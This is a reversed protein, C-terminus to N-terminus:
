AALLRGNKWQIEHEVVQGAKVDIPSEFQILAQMWHSSINDPSNRLMVGAGLDLEFWAVIAHATGDEVVPLSVKASGDELPGNAFDFAVLEVAESLITHPWTHLRVPYHGVTAVSNLLAVDFGGANSVRNLGMIVKSQLLAGYVRGAVPMLRGGPALLHERAHKLTPLIGEGILGCDVIESVIVDAPRDLDRGVELQSSMKPIVTISDSLGHAEIVQAAIEALVPNAECSIVKAAGAKAAFMALLGTGAGIDLVYDGPRIQREVATALAENREIDNLMAFHWRPVVSRAIERVMPSTLTASAAMGRLTESIVNSLRLIEQAGAQLSALFLRSEALNLSDPAATERLLDSSDTFGDSRTAIKGHM